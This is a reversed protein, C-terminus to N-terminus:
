QYSRKTDKEIRINKGTKLKQAKGYGRIDKRGLM